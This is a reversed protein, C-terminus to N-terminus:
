ENTDGGLNLIKMLYRCEKDYDTDGLVLMKNRLESMCIKFEHCDKKMVSVMVVIYDRDSNEWENLFKVNIGHDLFIKDARYPNKDIYVFKKHRIRLGGRIEVYNYLKNM